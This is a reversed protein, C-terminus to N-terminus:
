PVFCGAGTCSKLAENLSRLSALNCACSAKRAENRLEYPDTRLDFLQEFSSDYRVYKLTATRGGTFRNRPTQFRSVPSM